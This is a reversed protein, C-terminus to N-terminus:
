ENSAINVGPDISGVSRIVSNRGWVTSIGNLNRSKDLFFLILLVQFTEEFREYNTVIRFKRTVRSSSGRIRTSQIERIRPGIM